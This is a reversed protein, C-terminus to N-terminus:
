QSPGQELFEKIGSYTAIQMNEKLLDRLTIKKFEGGRYRVRDFYKWQSPTDGCLRYIDIEDMKFLARLGNIKGKTIYFDTM